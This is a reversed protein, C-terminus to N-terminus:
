VEIDELTIVLDDSLALAQGNLEELVAAGQPFNLEQQRLLAAGLAEERLGLEQSIRPHTEGHLVAVLVKGAVDVALLCPGSEISFM